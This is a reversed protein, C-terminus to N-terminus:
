DYSIIQLWEPSQETWISKGLDPLVSHDWNKNQEKQKKDSRKQPLM